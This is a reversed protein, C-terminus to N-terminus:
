LNMEEGQNASSVKISDLGQSSSQGEAGNGNGNGNGGSLWVQIEESASSELLHPVSLNFLDTTILETLRAESGRIVVPRYQFDEQLFNVAQARDGGFISILLNDDKTSSSARIIRSKICPLDIIKVEPSLFPPSHAKM